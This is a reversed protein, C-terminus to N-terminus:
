EAKHERWGLFITSERERAGFFFKMVEEDEVDVGKEKLVAKVMSDPISTGEEVLVRRAGIKMKREVYEEEGGEGEM